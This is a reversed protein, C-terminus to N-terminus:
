RLDVWGIRSGYIKRPLNFESLIAGDRRLIRVTTDTQSQGLVIALRSGDMSWVISAGVGVEDGLRFVEGSTINLIHPARNGIFAIADGYTKMDSIYIREALLTETQGSAINRSVIGVGAYDDSGWAGYYVSESDDSFSYVLNSPAIWANYGGTVPIRRLGDGDEFSGTNRYAIWQGDPSWRAVDFEGQFIPNIARTALEMIQIERGRRLRQELLLYRGDASVDMSILDIRQFLLTSVGSQVDYLRVATARIDDTIAAAYIFTDRAQWTGLANAAITLLM